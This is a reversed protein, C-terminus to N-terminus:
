ATYCASGSTSVRSKAHCKRFIATAPPKTLLLHPILPPPVREEISEKLALLHPRPIERGESKGLPLWEAPPSGLRLAPAPRM